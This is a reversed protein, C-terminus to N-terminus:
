KLRDFKIMAGNKNDYFDEVYLNRGDVKIAYNKPNYASSLSYQLGFISDKLKNYSYPGAGYKPLMYGNRLERQRNLLLIGDNFTITDKRTSSEVWVSPELSISQVKDKKCSLMVACCLILYFLSFLSKM